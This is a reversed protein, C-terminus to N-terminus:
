FQKIVPNFPAFGRKFNRGEGRRLPLPIFPSPNTLSEHTKVLYLFNPMTEGAFLAGNDLVPSAPEGLGRQGIM